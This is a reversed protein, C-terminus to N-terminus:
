GALHAALYEEWGEERADCFAQWKAREAGVVSVSDGEVVFVQGNVWSAAEGLLYANVANAVKPQATSRMLANFRVNDRGDDASLGRLLGVIAHVVAGEVLPAHPDWPAAVPLEILVQGGAGELSKVFKQLDAWAKDMATGVAQAARPLELAADGEKAPKAAVLSLSVSRLPTAARKPAPTKLEDVGEWYKLPARKIFERSPMPSIEELNPNGLVWSLADAFRGSELLSSVAGLSKFRRIADFEIVYGSAVLFLRGSVTRFKERCLLAALEGIHRPDHDYFSAHLRQEIGAPEPQIKGKSMRSSGTPFLANVAINDGALRVGLARTLGVLAEKAAAYAPQRRSGLLGATSSTNLITGGGRKRLAPLAAAIMNCTGGVNVDLVARMDELTAQLLRVPRSIGAVNVLADLGGFREVAEDVVRKAAVPDRVDCTRVLLAESARERLLDGDGSADGTGDVAIGSDAAIVAFGERHLQEAIARGIGRGGGTVIAVRKRSM